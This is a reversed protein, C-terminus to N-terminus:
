PLPRMGYTRALELCQELPRVGETANSHALCAAAVCAGHHLCTAMDQSQHVAHLFGAAFADGAGLQSQIFDPPLAVVGQEAIGQSRHACVAGRECHVVVAINVGMALIETAAQGLTQANLQDGTISRGVLWGAELENLLLYDLNPAAAMVIDLMHPHERSVLDAVTILGAARARGFVRAAGTQDTANLRDLGELLTLYGLYFIKAKVVDFTFHDESLAANAGSFHFFTRRGSAPVTMVDTWATAAMDTTQLFRTEIDRQQCDETMWRGDPDNGVLGIAQLPFEADMAALDCLLNYPGGGGARHQSHVIALQDEAPYADIMKIHDVIFHGGALVGNRMTM